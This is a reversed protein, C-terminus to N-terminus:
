KNDSSASAQIGTVAIVYYVDDACCGRSLDNVPRNLGQLLPGVATAGGIREALKYGINGADLDPFVLVNARGQVQSAPLKRAAIEPVIAADLQIDEDIALDPYREKVARAAKIVKEVRPHRASGATSFSLMAVRPTENLLNQANQTAAAAIDALQNATPDIVLACDSFIMGGQIPHHPKDFLMLFFSSVLASGPAKGVIQLACRVVDATTYVAGAVSGDAHGTHVMLNAFRLPDQVEIAAQELTMGKKKRLQFLADTLEPTLPSFQPDVININELTINEQSACEQIAASSGVLTIHAIRDQAARAAAQLIRPDQGECLVIRAPQRSARDTIQELINM